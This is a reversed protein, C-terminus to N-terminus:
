AVPDDPKLGARNRPQGEREWTVRDADGWLMELDYHARTNPEFVHVVVDVFDALLWTSRDDSSARFVGFSREQGLDQVHSLVSRMQRESTGSGIVIFDTVQSLARVDLLVVDECKDDALLRAAEIAFSRAQPESATPLAPMSELSASASRQQGHSKRTAPRPMNPFAYAPSAKQGRGMSANL